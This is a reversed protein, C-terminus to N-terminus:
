SALSFFPMDSTLLVKQKNTVKSRKNTVNTHIISNFTLQSKLFSKILITELPLFYKKLNKEDNLLNWTKQFSAANGKELQNLGNKNKITIIQFL